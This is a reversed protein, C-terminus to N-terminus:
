SNLIYRVARVSLDFQASLDGIIESMPSDNRKIRELFVSKICRNRIVREDIGDTVILKFLLDRPPMDKHENLIADVERRMILEMEEICM